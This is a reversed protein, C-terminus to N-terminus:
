TGRENINGEVLICVVDSNLYVRYGNIFRHVQKTTFVMAPEFRATLDLREYCFRCSRDRCRKMGHETEIPVRRYLTQAVTHADTPHSRPYPPM